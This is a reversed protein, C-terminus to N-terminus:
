VTVIHVGLLLVTVSGDARPTRRERPAEGVSACVASSARRPAREDAYAGGKGAEEDDLDQEGGGERVTASDPRVSHKRPLRSRARTKYDIFIIIGCWVPM